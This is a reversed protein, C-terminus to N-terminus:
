RMEFIKVVILLDDYREETYFMKDNWEFEFELNKMDLRRMNTKHYCTNYAYTKYREKVYMVSQKLSSSYYINFFESDETNLEAVIYKPNKYPKINNTQVIYKKFIIGDDIEKKILFYYPSERLAVELRRTDIDEIESPFYGYMMTLDEYCQKLIKYGEAVSDIFTVKIDDNENSHLHTVIAYKM